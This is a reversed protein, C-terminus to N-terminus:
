DAMTVIARDQVIQLNNSTSYYRLRSFQSLPRVLDNFSIGNLLKPTIEYEGKMSVIVTDATMKSINLTLSYGSRSFLTLTWELNPVMHFEPFPVMQYIAYSNRNAKWLLWPSIKYRKRSIAVKQYFIACNKIGWRYKAGWCPSVGDSNRSSRSICLVLIFPSDHLSSLKVIYEATKICHWRTVSSCVSPRVPPPVSTWSVDTVHKLM